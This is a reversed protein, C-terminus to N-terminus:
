EKKDIRDLFSGDLNKAVEDARKVTIDIVSDKKYVEKTHIDRFTKLVKYKAM